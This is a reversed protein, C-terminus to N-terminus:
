APYQNPWVPWEKSEMFGHFDNLRAGGRGRLGSKTIAEVVQAPQMEFLVHHLASYGGSEIYEEIREPDVRGSRVLVIPMQRAFFPHSLDGRAAEAVDGTLAGVIL